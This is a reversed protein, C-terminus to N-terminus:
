QTECNIIFLIFLLEHNGVESAPAIVIEPHDIKARLVYDKLSIVKRGGAAEFIM